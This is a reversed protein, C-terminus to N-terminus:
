DAHSTELHMTSNRDILSTPLTVLEIATTTTTSMRSMLQWAAVEALTDIPQAVTTLGFSDSLEHDDVGVVSLDEPVRLGVKRAANIVGFAMEDSAAFIATPRDERQLINMVVNEASKATFDAHLLFAPDIELKAKKCAKQFGRLRDNPTSFNLPDNPDGTVVAIKRHNLSLLHQAAQIGVVENDIRIQTFRPEAIDILVTPIDRRILADFDEQDPSLSVLIAGEVGYVDLHEAISLPQGISNRPRLLVTEYGREFLVREIGEVVRAFYWRGIFPLVVAVRIPKPNKVNVRSSFDYQLETAIAVVHETTKASIAPHGRLARSVTAISVGAAKAVDRITVSM